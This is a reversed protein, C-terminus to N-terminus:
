LFPFFTKFNHNPYFFLTLFIRNHKGNSFEKIVDVESINPKAGQIKLVASNNNFKGSWHSAGIQNSGWYSSRWINKEVIFGTKNCIEEIIKKEILTIDTGKQFDSTLNLANTM